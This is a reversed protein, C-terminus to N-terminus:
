TSRAPSSTPSPTPRTSSGDPRTGRAVWRAAAGSTPSRSSSAATSCRSRSARFSPETSIEYSGYGYLLAPASGDIPTDRRHVLSIPVQTGDTATAWLRASVYEAPDYGGLVPQTKVVEARRSAMDYDVDTVPAVLSTYGYRLTRTEFEPNPGVWVSYVPDPM